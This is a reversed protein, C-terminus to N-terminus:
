RVPRYSSVDGKSLVMQWLQLTRARFSGASALLYYKWMRFLRDGYRGRLAPWAHAFNDWWAMLTKDYDPGFNHLDEMVFLGEAARSLQSLSPIVGGPFIYKDIWPDTYSCSQNGGITHLLFLGGLKLCKHVVEMFVRFNRYGVHECFGVSVARDFLSDECTAERYDKLEFRVPLGQCVEKGYDVQRTSINYSVIECGYKAAAFRALGGFGGGLELVRMGQRLGLKRCILDMKNQQAQELSAGGPWYGCSYQMHSDLMAQYLDNGLDYHQAAVRRALAQTQLNLLRSKLSLWTARSEGVDKHLEARKARAFFEDLSAADWWGDMYSEGLGLSGQALLRRFFNENHVQMDWPQPGNIVIGARALLRQIEKAEQSPSSRPRPWSEVTTANRM